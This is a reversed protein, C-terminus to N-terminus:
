KVTITGTYSPFLHDHMNWTGAKTFTYTYQEGTSLGRKSDFEPLVQHTPHLDSAPWHAAQGNNVFVVTTGAAISLERPTFGTDEITVTVSEGEDAASPTGAVVTLDPSESPAQQVFQSGVGPSALPILEDAEELASKPETRALYLGGGIVLLAVAILGIIVPAKM